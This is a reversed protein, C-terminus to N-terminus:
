KLKLIQKIVLNHFLKANKYKIKYIICVILFLIGMLGFISFLVKCSSESFFNRHYVFIAKFDKTFDSILYGLWYCVLITIIIFCFLFIFIRIIKMNMFKKIDDKLNSYLAKVTTSIGYNICSIIFGIIGGVVASIMLVAIFLILIKM